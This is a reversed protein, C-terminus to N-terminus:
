NYYYKSKSAGVEYKQIAERSREEEKEEGAYGAEEWHRKSITSRRIPDVDVVGYFLWVIVIFSSVTEEDAQRM